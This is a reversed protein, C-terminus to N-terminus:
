SVYLCYYDNNVKYNLQKANTGSHNERIFVEGENIVKGGFLDVGDSNILIGKTNEYEGGTTQTENGYSLQLEGGVNNENQGVLYIRSFYDTTNNSKSIIESGSWSVSGTKYQTATININSNSFQIFPNNNFNYYYFGDTKIGLVKVDDTEDPGEDINNQLQYFVIGGKNEDGTDYIKLSPDNGTGYITPTKIISQTILSNALVAGRFEGSRAFIRGKDTVIFPAKQVNIEKTGQAGGWFIIKDDEIDEEVEANAWNNYNFSINQHTNIGAYTGENNATVLSGHLFVNDAYLGYGSLYNYEPGLTEALISLDGLLLNTKYTLYGTNTTDSSQLDSFHEMILAKRPLINGAFNNDSNIGILLDSESYGFSTLTYYNNNLVENYDLNSTLQVDLYFEQKKSDSYNIVKGYRINKENSFAVIRRSSGSEELIVSVVNEPSIKNEPLDRDDWAGKNIIIKMKSCNAPVTVSTNNNVTQYTLFENDSNYFYTGFTSQNSIDAAVWTGILKYTQSPIVDLFTKTRIRSEADILRAQGLNYGYWTTAQDREQVVQELQNCDNLVISNNTKVSLRFVVIPYEELCVFPIQIRSWDDSKTITIESNGYLHEYGSGDKGRTKRGWIALKVTVQETASNNSVRVYSSAVYKANADLKIQGINGNDGGLFVYADNDSSNVSTNALRLSNKGARSSGTIIEATAYGSKNTWVDTINEFSDYYEYLNRGASGMVGQEFSSSNLSYVQNNFYTENPKAGNAEKLYVRLQDADLEQAAEIREIEFTPKFIFSGGMSRVNETTFNAANITSANIISANVEGQFTGDHAHIVGDFVGDRAYIVGNFVGDEAELIDFHAVVNDNIKKIYWNSGEIYGENTLAFMRQGENDYLRLIDIAGEHVPNYRDEGTYEPNFLLLNGIELYETIKAGHGIEINQVKIFSERNTGSSQLILGETELTTETITFGGITGSKAELGNIIINNTILQQTEVDFWFIANGNADRITFNGNTIELGDQSFKLSTSNIISFISEQYMLLRLANQETANSLNLFRSLMGYQTSYVQVELTVPADTKFVDNKWFDKIDQSIDELISDNELLATCLDGINFLWVDTYVQNSGEGVTERHLFTNGINGFDTLFNHTGKEATNVIIGVTFNDAAAIKYSKDKEDFSEVSIRLTNPSCRFVYPEGEAKIGDNAQPFKYINDVNTNIRNLNSSDRGDRVKVLNIRNSTLSIVNQEM